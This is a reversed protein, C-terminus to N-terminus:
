SLLHLDPDDPNILGILVLDKWVTPLDDGRLVTVAGLLAGALAALSNKMLLSYLVKREEETVNRKADM